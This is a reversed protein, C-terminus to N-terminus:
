FLRWEDRQIMDSAYVSEIDELMHRALKPIIRDLRPYGTRDSPRVDRQKEPWGIRKMERIFEPRSVM